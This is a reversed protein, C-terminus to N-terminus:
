PPADRDFGRGDDRISVTIATSVLDLAVEVHRAEAHKAINTLAEQM